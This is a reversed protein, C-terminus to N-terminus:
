AQNPPIVLPKAGYPTLNTARSSWVGPAYQRNSTIRSLFMATESAIAVNSTFFMFAAFESGSSSLLRNGAVDCGFGAPYIKVGGVVLHGLVLVDGHSPPTIEAIRRRELAHNGASLIM